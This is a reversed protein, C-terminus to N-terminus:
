EITLTTQEKLNLTKTSKTAGDVKVKITVTGKGSFNVKVSTADKREKENYYVREDNVTIELKATEVQNSTTNTNTSPTYNILSKLNVTVTGDILKEIQNVTITISSGKEVSSGVDLTQKVVIGNDKSTDETTAVANLTLGAEEIAKTAEADTKGVLNPVVTM